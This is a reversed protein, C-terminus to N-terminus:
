YYLDEFEDCFELLMQHGEVLEDNTITRQHLLRIGRVLKCFNRWYPLPLVGYLLAPCLGYLYNLIEISKYGSNIKEAVNRPPRDFSRPLYPTVDEVAQGHRQWITNNRFVAWDWTAVNDPATCTMTGRWLSLLLEFLNSTALHM